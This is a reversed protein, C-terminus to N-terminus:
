RVELAREDIAQQIADQQDQELGGFQVSVIRKQQEAIVEAPMATAQMDTLIKLEQGVDAVNFDRPWQVTPMVSFGLWRRSLDWARRELDEMRASFRALEANISAFRMQMAIGSEQQNITAVSLGIEAIQDDIMKITDMYTRASTDGPQVWAPTTGSHVMLNNTGITEGAVQAADLKQARTSDEPVQMTLMPFTCSRLMERLESWQNFSDLALDAIPAFSGFHPFEGGEVFILVACEGLKHTGSRYVTRKEDDSIAAWGQRDHRWVCPTRKGDVMTNGSFEVLDFKGDDAITYERVDEPLVSIWYPASRTVVQEAMNPALLDPMDVALLMSGRAKANVLFGQMFISINNGRGDIDDAMRAYLDHPLERTQERTSLYGVFRSCARDLPSALRALQCRRAFKEDPERPHRVLYSPGSVM